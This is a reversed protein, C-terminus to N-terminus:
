GFVTQHLSDVQVGVKDAEPMLKNMKNLTNSKIRSREPGHAPQVFQRVDSCSLQMRICLLSVLMSSRKTHNPHKM